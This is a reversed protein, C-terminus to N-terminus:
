LRLGFLGFEGAAANKTLASLKSDLDTLEQNLQADEKRDKRLADIQQRLDNAERNSHSVDGLLAALRLSAQFQRSLDTASTKVRPDMKVVLPLLQSYQGMSLRLTYTGPLAGPGSPGYFSQHVSKPLAYHLDWVFRHM